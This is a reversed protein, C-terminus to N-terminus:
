NKTDYGTLRRLEEIGRNIRVSVANASIGIIKGIEPPPLGEIFRLYIVDKYSEGLEKIKNILYRGEAELGIDTASTESVPEFSEGSEDDALSELSISKKKRYWDIILRHTVTFLFARENVIEMGQLMQKWLRTFVEQTIDRAQERNSVRVFCYRFINDSEAQYCVTFNKKLVEVKINM